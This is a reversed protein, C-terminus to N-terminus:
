VQQPCENQEFLCSPVTGAGAAVTTHHLPKIQKKDGGCRKEKEEGQSAACFFLSFFCCVVSWCERIQQLSYHYAAPHDLPELSSAQRHDHRHFCAKRERRRMTKGKWEKRRDKERAGGHTKREWPWVKRKEVSMKEIEWAGKTQIESCM